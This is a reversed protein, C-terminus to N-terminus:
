ASRLLWVTSPHSHLKAGLVPLYPKMGLAYALGGAMVLKHLLCGVM